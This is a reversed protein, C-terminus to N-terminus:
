STDRGNLTDIYRDGWDPDSQEPPFVRDLVAFHTRATRWATRDSTPEQGTM